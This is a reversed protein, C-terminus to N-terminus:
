TGRTDSPLSTIEALIEGTTVRIFKAILDRDNEADIRVCEDPALMELKEVFGEVDSHLAPSWKTLGRLNMDLRIAYIRLLEGAKPM